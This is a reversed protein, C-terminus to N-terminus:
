TEIGREAKPLALHLVVYGALAGVQIAVPTDLIKEYFFSLQTNAFVLAAITSALLLLGSASELQMFEKVTLQPITKSMIRPIVIETSIPPKCNRLSLPPFTCPAEDVFRYLNPQHM